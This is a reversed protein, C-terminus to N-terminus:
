KKANAVLREFDDHRQDHTEIIRRVFPKAFNDCWATMIAPNVQDGDALSRIDALARAKAADAAKVMVSQAEVSSLSAVVETKIHQAYGPMAGRSGATQSHFTPDRLACLMSYNLALYPPYLLKALTDYDVARADAIVTLMLGALIFTKALDSRRAAIAKVRRAGALEPCRADGGDIM